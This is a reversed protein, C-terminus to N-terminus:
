LWRGRNRARRLRAMETNRIHRFAAARAEMLFIARIELQKEYATRELFKAYTGPKHIAYLDEHVYIAYPATFTVRGRTFQRAGYILVKGSKRLFGPPNGNSGQDSIPTVKLTEHLLFNTSKIVGREVGKGFATEYGKLAQISERVGYVKSIVIPGQM